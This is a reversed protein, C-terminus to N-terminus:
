IQGKYRKHLAAVRKDLDRQQQRVKELDEGLRQFESGCVIENRGLDYFAPNFIKHGRNKALDAYEARSHVLCITTPRTLPRRPPLFRAYAAYIQELRVAARRVVDERADSLLVFQVSTYSWAEGKKDKGWTVRELDLNEMRLKEGKGSPDLAHIRGALIERER